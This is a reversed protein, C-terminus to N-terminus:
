QQPLAACCAAPLRFSLSPIKALSFTRNAATALLLLCNPNDHHRAHSTTTHVTHVYFVNEMRITPLCVCAVNAYISTRPTPGCLCEGLMTLTGHGGRRGGRKEKKKRSRVCLHCHKRVACNEAETNQVLPLRDNPVKKGPCIARGPRSSPQQLIYYTIRGRTTSTRLAKSTFHVALLGALLCAPKSPWGPVIRRAPQAPMM